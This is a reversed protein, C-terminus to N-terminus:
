YLCISKGHKGGELAAVATEFAKRTPNGSRSYDFGKHEGAKAQAFTTSLSLSPIVAGTAPDPEQGAHVCLSNFQLQHHMSKEEQCFEHAVRWFTLFLVSLLCSYIRMFIENEKRDLYGDLAM